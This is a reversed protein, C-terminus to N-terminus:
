NRQEKRLGRPENWDASHFRVHDWTRLRTRFVPPLNIKKSCPIEGWTSYTGPKTLDSKLPDARRTKLSPVFTVRSVTLRDPSQYSELSYNADSDSGGLNQSDEFTTSQRPPLGIAVVLNIRIPSSSFNVLSYHGADTTETSWWEKSAGRLTWFLSPSDSVGYSQCQTTSQTTVRSDRVTYPLIL